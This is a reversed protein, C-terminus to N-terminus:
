TGATDVNAPVLADQIAAPGPKSLFDIREDSTLIKWNPWTVNRPIKGDDRLRVFELYEPKLPMIGGDPGTGARAEVRATAEKKTRLDKAEVIQRQQPESRLLVPPSGRASEARSKVKHNQSSSSSSSLSPQSLPTVSAHCPRSQLYSERHKRQRDADSGRRLADRVMRRSFIVGEPTRSPVGAHELESLLSLYQELTCGCRRAISEPPIPSGNVELYGYRESDHGIFMM